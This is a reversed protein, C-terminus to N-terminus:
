GTNGTASGGPCGPGLGCWRGAGCLVKAPVPQLLSAQPGPLFPQPLPSPFTGEQGGHERSFAAMSRAAHACHSGTDPSWGTHGEGLLTWHAQPSAGTHCGEGGTVSPEPQTEGVSGGCPMPPHASAGRKATEPAPTPFDAPCPLSGGPPQPPPQAGHLHQNWALGGTCCPCQRPCQRRQCPAAHAPREGPSGQFAPDTLFGCTVSWDGTDPTDVTPCVPQSPAPTARPSPGGHLPVSHPVRSAKPSLDPEPRWGGQRCLIIPVSLGLAGM